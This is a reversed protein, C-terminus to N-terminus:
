FFVVSFYSFGYITLINRNKMLFFFFDVLSEKWIHVPQDSLSQQRSVELGGHLETEMVVPHRVADDQGDGSAGLQQFCGLSLIKRFCAAPYRLDSGSSSARLQSPLTHKQQRLRRDRLEDAGDDGLVPVVNQPRAVELVPLLRQGGDHGVSPGLLKRREATLEGSPKERGARQRWRETDEVWVEEAASQLRRLVSLQFRLGTQAVDAGSIHLLQNGAPGSRLSSVTRQRQLNTYTQHASDEECSWGGWRWVKDEVTTESLGDFVKDEEDNHCRHTNSVCSHVNWPQHVFM